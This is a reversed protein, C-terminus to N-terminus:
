NEKGAIIFDNTGYNIAYGTIKDSNEIRFWGAYWRSNKYIRIGIYNESSLNGNEDKYDHYMNAQVMASDNVSITEGPYYSKYRKQPTLSTNALFRLDNGPNNESSIKWNFDIGLHAGGMGNSGQFQNNHYTFFKFDSIFDSDYDLYASDKVMSPVAQHGTSPPSPSFFSDIRMYDFVPNLPQFIISDPLPGSMIVQLNEPDQEKDDECSIILFCCIVLNFFLTKM